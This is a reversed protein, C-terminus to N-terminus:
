GWMSKRLASGHMVALLLLVVFGAISLVLGVGHTTSKVLEEADKRLPNDRAM